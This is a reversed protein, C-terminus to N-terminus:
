EALGKFTKRVDELESEFYELAWIIKKPSIKEATLEAWVVDFANSLDILATIATHRLNDKKM